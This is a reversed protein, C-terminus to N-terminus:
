DLIEFLIYESVKTGAKEGQSLGMSLMKLKIWLGNPTSHITHSPTQVQSENGSTKHVGLNLTYSSAFACALLLGAVQCLPCSTFSCRGVLACACNEQLTTRLKTDTQWSIGLLWRFHFPFFRQTRFTKLMIRSQMKLKFILFKISMRSSKITGHVQCQFKWKLPIEFRVVMTVIYFLRCFLFLKEQRLTQIESKKSLEVSTIGVNM